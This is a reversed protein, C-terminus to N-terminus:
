QILCPLLGLVGKVFHLLGGRAQPWQFILGRPALAVSIRRERAPRAIAQYRAM